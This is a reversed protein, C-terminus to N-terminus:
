DKLPLTRLKRQLTSRAVGLARAARSVNNDFRELARRIARREVEALTEIEEGGPGGGAPAGELGLSGARVRDGAELLAARGVANELERVNGPWDHRLLAARAKQSFGGFRKGARQAAVALFHEALELIDGPRDRLPPLAIPFAAIRYFLDERFAGDRVAATLDRNTASILEFDLPIVGSGGLREIEGSQLVRLLRAQLAPDMDGVEDLFITGGHAREFSGVRRAQAGTFAGREHGFLESEILTPPLAACNVAVFPGEGRPGNDHLSRAVLEKGTGSEGAILVALGGEAARRMLARVRAMEPSSGILGDRRRQGDLEARLRLVEARMRQIEIERSVDRLVLLDGIREARANRVTKETRIFLRRSQDPGSVEVIDGEEGAPDGGYAEGGLATFRPGLSAGAAAASTEAATAPDGLDRLDEFWRNAFVLRGTQDYMAMADGTTDLVAELRHHSANFDREVNWKAALSMAIQLIEERAFPKRIYLLKHLSEVDPAIDSMRRDTYATMLVIEIDRDIRRISRVTEIGDMGPPMRIDVFAVAFPEGAACALSVVEVAEEGSVAHRLEFDVLPVDEQDEDLFASALEVTRSSRAGGDGGALIAEFDDHIDNQDDVVLVRTNQLADM